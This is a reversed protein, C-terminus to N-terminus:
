RTELAATPEGSTHTHERQIAAPKGWTCAAMSTSLRGPSTAPPRHPSSRSPPLSKRRSGRTARSAGPQGDSRASRSRDRADHRHRHIRARRRERHDVAGRAGECARAHVRRHRGQGGRLEDARCKRHIRRGVDRQHDPRPPAEDPTARMSQLDPVPVHSRNRHGREMAERGDQRAAHRPRNGCQQRPDGADPGSRALSAFGADVSETSAVDLVIGRGPAPADRLMREVRGAGGDTTATGIVTAGRESLAGAIAAGIGRTAGTVLAVEGNLDMMRGSRERGGRARPRALGPRAGSVGCSGPRNPSRPRHASQGSRVRGDDGSRAGADGHRDSGWRVPSALQAALADRISADTCHSAIDVNHLVPVCPSRLEMGALETELRGAVPAMLPCHVPVSMPLRVTRKAGADRARQIALDIAHSTGAIAVQGPANFNVASVHGLRREMGSGRASRSSKMTASVIVAAIGGEGEPVAEQMLRGRVRVTRVAESFDFAGVAVLASYEGLSHGAAVGPRPGGRAVWCRWAAVGAALMAPQTQETANLRNEPGDQVLTWLDYGLAQSAEDFRPACRVCADSLDSLMGISQSGQGPFPRRSCSTAGPTETAFSLPAVLHFRRRVSRAAAGTGATCSRRSNGYRPGPYRPPRPTETSGVTVIVREMSMGLKRATAEIIRINAQHPILWDIDSRDMNNSDLTEDVIRHLTRVAVKFVRAARCRRIPAADAIRGAGRPTGGEVYLLSEYRGDAHLHTSIVGPSESAELVIAGAGDGFLVCTGRDSWDLLRSHTDAGVVLARGVDGARFFKEVVGLAYIFGTCVGARRVRSM